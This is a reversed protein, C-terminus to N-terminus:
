LTIWIFCSMLITGSFNILPAMEQNKLLKFHKPHIPVTIPSCLYTTWEMLLGIPRSSPQNQAIMIFSYFILFLTQNVPLSFHYTFHSGVWLLYLHIIIHDKFDEYLNLIQKSSPVIDIIFIVCASSLYYLLVTFHYIGTKYWNLSQSILIIVMRPSITILSSSERSLFLKM